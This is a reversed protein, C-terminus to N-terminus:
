ALSFIFTAEPDPVITDSKWPTLLRGLGIGIRNRRRRGNSAVVLIASRGADADVARRRLCVRIDFVDGRGVGNRIGNELAGVRIMVATLRHDAGPLCLVNGLELPVRLGHRHGRRARDAHRVDSTRRGVTVSPSYRKSNRKMERNFTSEEPPRPLSRLHRKAARCRLNSQRVQLM